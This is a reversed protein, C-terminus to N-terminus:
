KPIRFKFQVLKLTKLGKSIQSQYFICLNEKPLMYFYIFSVSFYHSKGTKFFMNVSQFLAVHKYDWCAPTQPRLIVPFELSGQAVDHTRSWGSNCQFCGTEFSFLINSFHAPYYLICQVM